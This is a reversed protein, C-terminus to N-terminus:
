TYCLVMIEGQVWGLIKKVSSFHSTIVENLGQDLNGEQIYMQM